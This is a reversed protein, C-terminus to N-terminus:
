NFILTLNKRPERISYRGGLSSKLHNVRSFAAVQPTEASFKGTAEPLYSLFHFKRSTAPWDILGGFPDSNPTLTKVDYKKILGWPDGRCRPGAAILRNWKKQLTAM